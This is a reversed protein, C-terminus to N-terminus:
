THKPHNFVHIPQIRDNQPVPTRGLLPPLNNLSFFLFRTTHILYFLSSFAHISPLIQVLGFVKRFLILHESICM